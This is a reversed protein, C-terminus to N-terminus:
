TTPPTPLMPTVAIYPAYRRQERELQTLYHDCARKTIRRTRSNAHSVSVITGKRLLVYLTSRGMCLYRAAEDVTFVVPVTIRDPEDM